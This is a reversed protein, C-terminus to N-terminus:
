SENALESTKKREDINKSVLDRSVSQQKAPAEKKVSGHQEAKRSIESFCLRFLPPHATQHEYKTTQGSMNM